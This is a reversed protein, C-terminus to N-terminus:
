KLHNAEARIREADDPRGLESLIVGLNALARALYPRYRGPNAQALERRIIVAEETVPLADAPRGLASYMVGLNALSTALEPRYRGPNAQVVERYTTVAEETVPLADAPRGLERCTVGLNVLSQALDPRYRDPNAQALERYTTVAEQELPLADAPRGLASYRVGLNALSQALEPRHRDPNAQALDRRITVAEQELPLADTPRGLESYTVCLNALSTALDPRYRDPNAQALDRRITVAEQGLPLADAPRGLELLHGGQSNLATALNPLLADPHTHALERYINIAEESAALAEEQRGLDALRNSRNALSMALDASFAQIRPRCIGVAEEIAALAEEQRGLDSLENSQANLAPVLRPLFAEPLARALKRYIGVAEESAALAEEQRGLDALRNGRNFLSVALDPLFADPRARVLERRITIAEEIAVLAEEQRGVEWLQSSQNHLAAALGPLFADPHDRALKRDITVAEEIAALAEERRGLGALRNSQNNLSVALDHLHADPHDRALERDIALAEEIAVLAEDERGLDSLYNSQNTLAVSLGPLFADPHDRALERRITVAEESAALAEERRGLDSLWISLTVLWGAREKGTTAAVALAGTVAAGVEALAVSPRPIAEAITELQDEAIKSSALVSTIVSALAPNTETTVTLAPVVLREPEAELALRIQNLALPQTLAARALVTLAQAARREDVSAFLRAILERHKDLVTVVLQEAILDPRLQGIWERGDEDPSVPYLDHLWRAVTGRLQADTLDPVGTLLGIASEQDDAGILCGAAVVREIVDPDLPAALRRAISQQWYRREHGLLRSLVDAASQRASISTIATEADLVALLAAAHVVLVVADHDALRLQVDPRPIGRLDAFAALAETFVDQQNSANSVPGLTIPESAAILESVAYSSTDLLQQWWEGASRALLLIRLNPGTTASAAAALMVPLATRTEAYDAVLVVPVDGQRATQIADAEEGAPVWWSRCGLVAVREGLQRALRTKGSGGAGIVLRVAVREDSTVWRVLEELAPRPWFRVVEAEPRLYRAVGGDADDAAAADASLASIVAPSFAADAASLRARRRGALEQWNVAVQLIVASFLGALALAVGAVTGGLYGLIVAVAVAALAVVVARKDLRV